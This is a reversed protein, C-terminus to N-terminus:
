SRGVSIQKSNQLRNVWTEGSKSEGIPKITESIELRSFGGKEVAEKVSIGGFLCNKGVIEGMEQLKNWMEQDQVKVQVQDYNEM